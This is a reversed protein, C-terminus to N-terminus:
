FSRELIKKSVWKDCTHKDANLIIFQSIRCKGLRTLYDANTTLMLQNLSNNKSILNEFYKCDKCLGHM